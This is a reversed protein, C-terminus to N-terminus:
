MTRDLQGRNVIRRITPRSYAKCDDGYLGSGASTWHGADATATAQASPKKSSPISGAHGTLGIHFGSVSLPTGDLSTDVARRHRTSAKDTPGHCRTSLFTM